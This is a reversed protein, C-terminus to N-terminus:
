GNECCKGEKISLWIEQLVMRKDVLDDKNGPCQKRMMQESCLMVAM